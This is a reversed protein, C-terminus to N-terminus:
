EFINVIFTRDKEKIYEAPCIMMGRVLGSIHVRSEDVELQKTIEEFFYDHRVGWEYDKPVSIKIIKNGDSKLVIFSFVTLPRCSKCYIISGYRSRYVRDGFGNPGGIFLHSMIVDCECLICRTIKGEKFCDECVKMENRLTIQKKIEYAQRCSTCFFQHSKMVVGGGCVHQKLETCRHSEFYQGSDQCEHLARERIDRKLTDVYDDSSSESDSLSEVSLSDDSSSESDSLSEVSISPCDDPSEAESLEDPMQDIKSDGSSISLKDMSCVPEINIQQDITVFNISSKDDSNSSM